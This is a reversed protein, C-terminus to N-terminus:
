YDKRAFVFMAWLVIIAEFALSSGISLLPSKRMEREEFRRARDIQERTTWSARAVDDPLIDASTGIGCQKAVITVFDGTKPPIWSAVRMMQYLRNNEELGPSQEFVYLAAPAMAYFAWAGISLLIAAVVSKTKVAVLVSICYVYSFLLVLMPISVLYGPVWVGWRLGMVLFTLGVFLSAQLLAFVMTSLYKYLFLKARSMPKALLVDVAGREMMAPFMGATAIVMLIIGAGGLFKDMLMYVVLAVIKKRGLGALPNWGGTEIEWMGFMLSVRDSEFGVCAMSLAIILTIGAMVWFIKRDLSERFSDVVLAWFQM